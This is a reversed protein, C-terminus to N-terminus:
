VPQHEQMSVFHVARVGMRRSLGGRERPVHLCRARYRRREVCGADLRIEACAASRNSQRQLPEVAGQKLEICRLAREVGYKRASTSVSCDPANATLGATLGTKDASEEFTTSATSAPEMLKPDAAAMAASRYTSTQFGGSDCNCVDLVLVRLTTDACAFFFRLLPGATFCTASLVMVGGGASVTAGEADGDFAPRAFVAGFGVSENGFSGGSIPGSPRTSRTHDRSSQVNLVGFAGYRRETEFFGKEFEAFPKDGAGKTSGKTSGSVLALKGELHLEM